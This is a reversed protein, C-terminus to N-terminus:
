EVEENQRPEPTIVTLLSAWSIASVCRVASSPAGLQEVFIPEAYAGTVAHMADFVLSFDPRAIFKRLMDFDFVEKLLALYDEVPDIVEVQM